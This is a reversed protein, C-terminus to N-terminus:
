RLRHEIQEVDILLSPVGKNSFTSLIQMAQRDDSADYSQGSKWNVVLYRSFEENRRHHAIMRLARKLRERGLGAERLKVIIGALIADRKTYLRKHGEHHAPLIGQEDWWQLQRPTIHLRKGLDVSGFRAVLQVSHVPRHTLLLDHDLPM